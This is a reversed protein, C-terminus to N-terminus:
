VIMLVLCHVTILHSCLVFHNLPCACLSVVFCELVHIRQLLSYCVLFDVFILWHCFTSCHAPRLVPHGDINCHYKSLALANTSLLLLYILHVHLDFICPGQLFREFWACSSCADLGRVVTVYAVFLQLILLSCCCRICGQVTYILNDASCFSIMGICYVGIFVPICIM